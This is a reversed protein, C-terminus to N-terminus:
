RSTTSWHSSLARSPTSYVLSDRRVPGGLCDPGTAADLAYVKKDLSGICVIGDVVAPSSLVVGGTTHTWRPTGTAADLAYVKKDLSGIYVTGDVVAPSSLVVGGTTHTWRPTGTAADLAYVKKDLSGIYVTGDVVAPSSYVKDSTTYTWLQHFPKAMAPRAPPPRLGGTAAGVLRHSPEALLAPPPGPPSSAAPPSLRDRVDAASAPRDGPDKALLEALTSVTTM